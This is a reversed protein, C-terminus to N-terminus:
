RRHKIYAKMTQKQIKRLNRANEKNRQRNEYIGDYYDGSNYYWTGDFEEKIDKDVWYLCTNELATPYEIGTHDSLRQCITRHKSMRDDNNNDDDEDDEDDEDKNYFHKCKECTLGSLLNKALQGERYKIIKRFKKNKRSM